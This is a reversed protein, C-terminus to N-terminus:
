ATNSTRLSDASHRSRCAVGAATPIALTSSRRPISASPPPARLDVGILKDRERFQTITYGTLSMEPLRSTRRSVNLQRAKTQDVEFHVSREAPEDWDFQVNTTDPRRADDRRSSPGIGCREIGAGTVRFQVPFGVASRERPAVSARACRRSSTACYRNSGTARDAERPRQGVERDGRVARFEAAAIAPGAASLFAARRHRRLRRLSRDGPSEVLVMRAATGRAPNGRVLRGGAAPPGGATGTPGFEPLVTATGSHFQPSVWCSCRSPSSWCWARRDVCWAIWGRLRPLLPTTSMTITWIVPDHRRRPPWILPAYSAGAPHPLRAASDRDGRRALVAAARYGVGRLDLPHIRRHASKALAIPLFGSVTVLTGTLMPFATSTYAFAAARLRDFGQELKVAMTEVAIIADDVLLGLALILTGLSVKHLGIHFLYM